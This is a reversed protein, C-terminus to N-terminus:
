LSAEKAHGILCQVFRQILKLNWSSMAVESLVCSVVSCRDKEFNFTSKNVVWKGNSLSAIFVNWIDSSPFFILICLKISSKYNTTNISNNCYKMWRRFLFLPLKSHSVQQSWVAAFTMFLCIFDQPVTVVLDPKKKKKEFIFDFSFWTFQLEEFKKLSLCTQINTQYIFPDIYTNDFMFGQFCVCFFRRRYTLINSEGAPLNSCFTLVVSFIHIQQFLILYRLLSNLCVVDEKLGINFVSFWLCLCSIFCSDATISLQM